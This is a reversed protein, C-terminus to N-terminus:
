VAEAPRIQTRSLPLAPNQPCPLQQWFSISKAQQRLETILSRSVEIEHGAIVEVAEHSPDPQFVAETSGSSRDNWEPVRWFTMLPTWCKRPPLQRRALSGSRWGLRM